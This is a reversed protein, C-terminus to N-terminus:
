ASVMSVIRLLEWLLLYQSRKIGKIAVRLETIFYSTKM